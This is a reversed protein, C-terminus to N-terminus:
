EFEGWGRVACDRLRMRARYLIIRLNGPSLKCGAEIEDLDMGLYERMLFLRASQEPLRAMCLEIIALLQSREAIKEGSLHDVFTAPHWADDGTFWSDIIADSDDAQALAISAGRCRIADVIKHRLIGCLWSRVSSKQAYVSWNRLAAFLTEQVADEADADSALQLRALRLLFARERTIQDWTDPASQSAQQHASM